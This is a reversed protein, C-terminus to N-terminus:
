RRSNAKDINVQLGLIRKRARSTESLAVLKFVNSNPVSDEGYVVKALLKQVPNSNKNM